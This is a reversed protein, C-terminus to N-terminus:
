GDGALRARLDECRLLAAALVTVGALNGDPWTGTEPAASPSAADALRQLEDRDALLSAAAARSIPDVAHTPIKRALAEWDARPLGLRRMLHALVHQDHRDASADAQARLEDRAATDGPDRELLVQAIFRRCLTDPDILIHPLPTTTTATRRGRPDGALLDHLLAPGDDYEALARLATDMNPSNPPRELKIHPLRALGEARWAPRRMLMAVANWRPSPAWPGTDALGDILWVVRGALALWPLERALPVGDERHTEGVFRLFGRQAPSRESAWAAYRRLEIRVPIRDGDRALQATLWRTLISKGSGPEGVLLLWPERAPWLDTVPVAPAPPPLPRPEDSGGTSPAPPAPLRATLPIFVRELDFDPIDLLDGLMEEVPPRHAVRRAHAAYDRRHQALAPDETEVLYPAVVQGLADDDGADRLASLLDPVRGHAEAAAIVDGALRKASAEPPLDAALDNLHLEVLRRLARADPYRRVLLAHLAPRWTV